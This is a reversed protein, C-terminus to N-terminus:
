RGRCGCDAQQVIATLVIPGDPGEADWVYTGRETGPRSAAGSVSLVTAYAGRRNQVRAKVTLDSGNDIIRAQSWRLDDGVYVDLHRHVRAM